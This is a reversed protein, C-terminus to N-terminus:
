EGGGTKIATILNQSYNGSTGALDMIEFLEKLVYCHTMKITIM